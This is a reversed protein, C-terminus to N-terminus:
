NFAFDSYAIREADTGYVVYRPHIEDPPGLMERAEQLSSFGSDTSIGTAVEGGKVTYPTSFIM